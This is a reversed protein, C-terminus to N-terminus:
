RKIAQIVAKLQSKEKDTLSIKVSKAYLALLWVKSNPEPQYYYIARAGGSKGKNNDLSLRIKRCGGTGTILDGKSPDQILLEQFQQYEDDTLLEERQKEFFPTEIFTCYDM